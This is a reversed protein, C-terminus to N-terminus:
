RVCQVHLPRTITIFAWRAASPLPYTTCSTNLCRATLSVDGFSLLSHVCRYAQHAKYVRPALVRRASITTWTRKCLQRLPEAKSKSSVNCSTQKGGVIVHSLINAM